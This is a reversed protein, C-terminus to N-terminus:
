APPRRGKLAHIAVSGAFLLCFVLFLIKAMGAATTAIGGFGLLGALIALILFTFAWNLMMKTERNNKNNHGLRGVYLEKILEV